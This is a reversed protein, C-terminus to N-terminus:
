WSKDYTIILNFMQIPKGEVPTRLNKTIWIEHMDSNYKQPLDESSPVQRIQSALYEWIVGRVYTGLGGSDKAPKNSNSENKKHIRVPKQQNCKHSLNLATPLFLTGVDLVVWCVCWIKQQANLALPVTKTVPLESVRALTYIFWQPSLM